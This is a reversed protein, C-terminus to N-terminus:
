NGIERIILWRGDQKTLILSKQNKEKLYNSEYTQLFNVEAMDGKIEIEINSVSVQIKKKFIIRHKREIQWKNQSMGKHPEFNPAYALLYSKFDKHSWFQAWDQVASTIAEEEVNQEKHNEVTQKVEDKKVDKTIEASTSNGDMEEIITPKVTPSPSQPLYSTETAPVQLNTTHVPSSNLSIKDMNIELRLRSGVLSAQADVLAYENQALERVQNLLDLWTKRNAQFQREFSALVMNSGDVSKELASIQTYANLFEERDNQLTEQTDKMAVDVGQDAKAIRTSLAQAEVVNAFGAGPTYSLGAFIVTSNNSYLYNNGVPKDARVYYQPWREAEKTRFRNHAAVVESRAIQVAPVRTALDVWDTQQLQNLFPAASPLPPFPALSPLHRRLNVEGSLQELKLLAVKLNRQAADLEEQTQLQRSNVLILDIRSSAEADVRRQMQDKFGDLRVMTKQAVQVRAHAALLAQWANTIQLFLQKQQLEVRLKSIVVQNEAETVRSSVLGGDWLTQQVRLSHSPLTTTTGTNSEVVASLTPWRQREVANVDIAGAQAELRAALLLPHTNNAAAYLMNIHLAPSLPGQTSTQGLSQNAWALSIFLSFVCRYMYLRPVTSSKYVQAIFASTCHKLLHFYSATM